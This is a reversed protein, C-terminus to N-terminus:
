RSPFEILQELRQQLDYSFVELALDLLRRMAALEAPELRYELGDVDEWM